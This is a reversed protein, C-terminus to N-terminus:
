AINQFDTCRERTQPIHPHTIQSRNLSKQGYVRKAMNRPKPSMQISANIIRYERHQQRTM